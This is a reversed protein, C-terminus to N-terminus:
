NRGTLYCEISSIANGEDRGDAKVIIQDGFDLGLATIGMLSKANICRSGSEIYISSDFQCAVQVLKAIPRVELGRTKQVTVTKSIM